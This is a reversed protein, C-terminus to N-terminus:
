GEKIMTCIIWGRLFHLVHITGIAKEYLTGLAFLVVNFNFYAPYQGLYEFREIKFGTERAIGEIATRTNVKYQIPFTDEEARGETRAVIWPHFRNPVIRAILSAYDWLNATLFM